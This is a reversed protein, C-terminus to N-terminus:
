KKWSKSKILVWFIMLHSVIVLPAYLGPAVQAVYLHHRGREAKFGSSGDATIRDRFQSDARKFRGGDAYEQPLEAETWVGNILVGM